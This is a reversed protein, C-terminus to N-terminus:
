GSSLAKKKKSISIINIAKTDEEVFFYRTARRPISHNQPYFSM